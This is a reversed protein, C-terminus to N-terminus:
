RFRGQGVKLNGGPNTAGIGCTSARSQGSRTSKKGEMVVPITLSDFGKHQIKHIQKHIAMWWKFFPLEEQPALHQLSYYRPIRFWTERSHVCGLLLHGLTKVEQACLACDDSDWTWSLAIPELDLLSWAVCAVWLLPV